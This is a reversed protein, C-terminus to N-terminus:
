CIVAAGHASPQRDTMLSSGPLRLPAPPPQDAVVDHPSLGRKGELNSVATHNPDRLLSSSNNVNLLSAIAM